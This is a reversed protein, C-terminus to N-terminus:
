FYIVKFDNLKTQQECSLAGLDDSNGLDYPEMGHPADHKPKADM